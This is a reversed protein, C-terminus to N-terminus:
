IMVFEALDHAVKPLNAGQDLQLLLASVLALLM